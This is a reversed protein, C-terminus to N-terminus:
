MTPKPSDPHQQMREGLRHLTQQTTHLQQLIEEKSAPTELPRSREQRVNELNQIVVAIFLNTVVFASIVIFTVFYVWALPQIEIVPRMINGWDDLTVIQFLSLVSVGLSGWYQTDHEGFINHGVLAYTYLVIGQLILIHGVSPISRFLTSLILRLEQVTSLSRLLGLLRAAVVLVGYSGLAFMPSVILFTIIAFEFINWADKFYQDIRPSLAFMKLLVEFVLAAMMLIWIIAFPIAIRDFWYDSTAIGQLIASATILAILTYKFSQANVIRNAKERM